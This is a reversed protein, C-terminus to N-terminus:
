AIPRHIRLAVQEHNANYALYEAKLSHTDLFESFAKYEHNRFNPYNYFEDFLLVTGEVIKSGLIRLAEATSEYTDCDVHLFAIPEDQLDVFQPLTDAFWGQKVEVNLLFSPLPLDKPWAAAGSAVFLDGRDWDKPFGLYSDFTYIKKGPNLAALFNATRGMFTGLEVFLGDVSVQDVAFRLIEADSAFPRARKLATQVFQKAEENKQYPKNDPKTHLIQNGDLGFGSGGFLSLNM